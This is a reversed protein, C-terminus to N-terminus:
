IGPNSGEGGGHREGDGYEFKNTHEYEYLAKLANDIQSLDERLEVGTGDAEDAGLILRWKTLIEVPEQSM